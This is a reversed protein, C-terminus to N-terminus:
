KISNMSGKLYGSMDLSVYKFGLSKLAKSVESMAAGDFDRIREPAVEVRALDGGHARVRVLDFGMSRIFNEAEDIRRLLEPSIEMGCEFRTMLCAYAPKGAFSKGLGCELALESIEAKGIGLNLFPSEIGLEKAARIGPRYDSNDDFNTGDCLVSFGNLNAESKLRSFMEMKCFFCRMPPNKRISHPIGMKVEVRRVGLMKSVGRSESLERSMMFPADVTLALCNESGLVKAACALLASSDLGGSLAVAVKSKEVFYKELKSNM